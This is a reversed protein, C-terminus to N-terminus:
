VMCVLLKRKMEDTLGDYSEGVYGNSALAKKTKSDLESYPKNLLEKFDRGYETKFKEFTPKTENGAEELETREGGNEKSLDAEESEQQASEISDEIDTSSADEDIVEDELDKRLFFGEEEAMIRDSEAGDILQMEVAEREMRAVYQKQKETIPGFEHRNVDWADFYFDTGKPLFSKANTLISGEALLADFRDHFKKKAEKELKAKETDTYKTESKGSPAAIRIDLMCDLKAFWQMMYRDSAQDPRILYSKQQEGEKKAAEGNNVRLVFQQGAVTGDDNLVDVNELSFFWKHIDLDQRLVGLEKHLRENLEADFEARTEPRTVKQKAVVGEVIIPEGNVDTLVEEIERVRPTWRQEPTERAERVISAIRSISERIRAFTPTDRDIHKETFRDATLLIPRAGNATQTLFYLGGAPTGQRKDEKRKKLVKKVWRTDDALKKNGYMVECRNDNKDREIYVIAGDAFGPLSDARYLGGNYNYDIVGNQIGWVKSKKGFVFTKGPNDKKFKKYDDLLERRLALLGYYKDKQLSLVTLTQLQKGVRTCVLIQEEGNYKPFTPDIVFELEDGRRLKTNVYRFAGRQALAKWITEYEPHAKWFDSLDLNSLGQAGHRGGAKAHNRAKAAEFSDIEPVSTRYYPIGESFGYDMRITEDDVDQPIEDGLAAAEAALLDERTPRETPIASVDENEAELAEAKTQWLEDIGLAKVIEPAVADLIRRSAATNETVKDAGDMKFRTSVDGEPFVIVEQLTFRSDGEADALDSREVGDDYMDYAYASLDVSGKDIEAHLTGDDDRRVTFEATKEKGSRDIFSVKIKSPVSPQTEGGSKESGAPKKSEPPQNPIVTGPQAADRGTPASITDPPPTFELPKAGITKRTATDSELQLYEKMANRVAAKASEYATPSKIGFIPTNVTDFVDKPTFVSDEMKELDEISNAYKLLDNLLSPIMGPLMTPDDSQIPHTEEWKRFANYRDLMDMFKGINPNDKRHPRLTNERYDLREKYNKELYADKVKQLSDLADAEQSIVAEEAADNVKEQTVAQEVHEQIGKETQLTRLKQYFAKRDESLKIMDSVKKAVEPEEKALDTLVELSTDISKQVVSPLSVPVVSGAFIREYNDRLIRYKDAAKEKTAMSGDSNLASMAALLPDIAKMTEGFMQLFRRDIARIQQATFVLEDIVSEDTGQPVRAQLADYVDRYEEITTRMRDAQKKVRDVVDKDSANRAWNATKDDTGGLVERINDAESENISGYHTVLQNLDELRGAKAFTAVDSILQEDDATHWAYQDDAVLATSMDNDYKLHRIYGHWRDQFEKSNVLANLKDAAAKSAVVEERADRYGEVVGGRWKRGPIGFLGTIAGLAGEQWNKIDSLYERGGTYMQEFWGRVSRIAEEDYGSDNFATLRNEAVEKTGSSATGQLMEEAAETGAVKLSNLITRGFRHRKGAYEAVPKGDVFRVGGKVSANIARSTKWGGSFLRAFQIHNSPILICQNLLYTTAALRRGEQEAFDKAKEYDSAIKRQALALEGQGEVTLVPTEVISGDPQLQLRNDVFRRDGSEYIDAEAKALDAAYKEDLRRNYDELFENKAMLGETTGEGMASVTAGYIQLRAEARNLSRAVRQLNASLKEGDVALATGRQIAEAARALEASAAADGNAAAVAGKMVDGALKKTMAKGIAKTWAAGGVMAGVTFGFNKLISDGIFNGTHMHKYWEKQYKESREEQTRYNPLAEESWNQLAILKESVWNNVGADLSKMFGRGDGNNDFALDFLATVAGAAVGAVTNAATALATIGGKTLGTGVKSFWGQELARNHELDMGPSYSTDYKSTGYGAALAEETYNNAVASTNAAANKFRQYLPVPQVSGDNEYMEDDLDLQEIEGLGNQTDVGQRGAQYNDLMEQLEKTTM